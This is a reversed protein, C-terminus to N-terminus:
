HIECRIDKEAHTWCKNCTACDSCRCQTFTDNDTFHEVATYIPWNNKLVLAIQAADTDAWISARLHFNEPLEVDDFYTFSKTYAMFVFRPDNSFHQAIELWAMAYQKNFFDGSEHIRVVIHQKKTRATMIHLIDIMDQAFSASKAATTNDRRAPLVQPYCRESKRAYCFRKCLATAWPCTVIALLSWIIFMTDHNPRLKKNGKSLHYALGNRRFITKSKNM